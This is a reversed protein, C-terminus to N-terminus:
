AYYVRNPNAQPRVGNAYLHLALNCAENAAETADEVSLGGAQANAFVVDQAREAYKCAADLTNSPTTRVLEEIQKPNM